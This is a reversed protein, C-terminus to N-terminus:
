VILQVIPVLTDSYSTDPVIVYLSICGIIDCDHIHFAGIIHLYAHSFFQRLSSVFANIITRFISFTGIHICSSMYTCQETASTLILKRLHM